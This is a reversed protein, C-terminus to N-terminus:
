RPTQRPWARRAHLLRVIRIVSPQETKYILCYPLGPVLLERTGAVRGPRGRGPLTELGYAAAFIRKLVVEATAADDRSIHAHIGAVDEAAAESWRIL